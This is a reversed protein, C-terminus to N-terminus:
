LKLKGFLKSLTGKEEKVEPEPPKEEEVAKEGEEVAQAEEWYRKGDRVLAEARKAVDILETRRSKGEGDKLGRVLEKMDWGLKEFEEEVARGREWGAMGDRYRDRLNKFSKEQMALKMADRGNLDYRQNFQVVDREEGTVPDQITTREVRYLQGRIAELKEEIKSLGLRGLHNFVDRRNGILEVIAKRRFDTGQPNNGFNHIRVYNNDINAYRAALPGFLKPLTVKPKDVFRSAMKFGWPDGKKAYEIVKNAHYQIYTARARTTQILEHDFLEGLYIRGMESRRLPSGGFKKQWARRGHKM